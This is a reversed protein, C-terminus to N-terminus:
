SRVPPPKKEFCSYAGKKGMAVRVEAAGMVAMEPVIFPRNAETPETEARQVMVGKEVAPPLPGLGEKNKSFPLYLLSREGPDGFCRQRRSCLMGPHRGADRVPEHISPLHCPSLSYM